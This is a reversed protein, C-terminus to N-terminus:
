RYPLMEEKKKSGETKFNERHFYKTEFYTELHLRIILSNRINEM